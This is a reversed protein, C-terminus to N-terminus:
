LCAHLIHICRYRVSIVRFVDDLSGSPAIPTEEENALPVGLYALYTRILTTLAENPFLTLYQRLINFDYGEPCVIV